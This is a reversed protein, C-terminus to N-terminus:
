VHVDLLPGQADTRRRDRWQRPLTQDVSFVAACAAGLRRPEGEQLGGRRATAGTSSGVPQPRPSSKHAIRRPEANGRRGSRGPARDRDFAQPPSDDRRDTERGILRSISRSLREQRRSYRVEARHVDRAAPPGSVTRAAFGSRPQGERDLAGAAEAAARHPAEGGCTRDPAHPESRRPACSSRRRYGDRPRRHPRCGCRRGSGPPPPTTARSAPPLPRASQGHRDSGARDFWRLTPQRLRPREPKPGLPRRPKTPDSATTGDTDFHLSAYWRGRRLSMRCGLIGGIGPVAERLRAEGLLLVLMTARPGADFRHYSAKPSGTKQRHSSHHRAVARSSHRSASHAEPSAGRASPM